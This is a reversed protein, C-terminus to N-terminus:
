PSRGRRAKRVPEPEAFAVHEDAQLLKLVGEADRDNKTQVLQISALEQDTEGPFLPEVVRVGRKRLQELTGERAATSAGASFKFHLNLTRTRDLIM